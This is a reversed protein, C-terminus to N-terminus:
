VLYEPIDGRIVDECYMCRLGSDSVDFRTDVPEDTNTICNRNPCRIVRSIEDPMKVEHKEQVDFERVVNVTADPAILAIIDAETSRIERGEVKVIDKKGLKSSMVNMAVSVTEETEQDVGLIKLVNLAQGGRIHDIVTGNEIPRIRLEEM